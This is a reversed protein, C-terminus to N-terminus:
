ILLARGALEVLGSLGDRYAEALRPHERLRWLTGGHHWALERADAISWMALQDGEDQIDRDVDAIWGKLLFRKVRTEVTRLVGNVRAFDRHQPSNARPERGLEGATLAVAIPLDHNIHANMGCLAFQLPRCHRGRESFLPRWAAPCERRADWDALAEFYLNGFVVDLRSLFEQDEFTMKLVGNHVGRTVALYLRNFYAVGDTRQLSRKISEMRAIVEDITKPPQAVTAAAGARTSM